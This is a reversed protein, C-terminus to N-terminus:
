PRKLFPSDVPLNEPASSCLRPASRCRGCFAGPEQLQCSSLRPRTDLLLGLLRGAMQCLKLCSLPGEPETQWLAVCRPPFPLGLRKNTAAPQLLSDLYVTDSARGSM